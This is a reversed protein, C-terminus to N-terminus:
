RQQRESSRSDIVVTCDATDENRVMEVVEHM